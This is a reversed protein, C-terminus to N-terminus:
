ASKGLVDRRGPSSYRAMVRHSTPVLQGRATRLASPVRRRRVTAMSRAATPHHSNSWTSRGVLLEGSTPSGSCAAGGRGVRRHQPPCAGAAPARCSSIATPRRTGTSSRATPTAHGLRGMPRRDDCRAPRADSCLPVRQMDIGATGSLRAFEAVPTVTSTALAAPRGRLQHGSWALIGSRSPGMFPAAIPHASCDDRARLWLQRQGGPLGLPSRPHQQTPATAIPPRSSEAQLEVPPAREPHGPQPETQPPSGRDM